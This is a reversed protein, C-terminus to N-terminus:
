LDEIRQRLDDSNIPKRWDKGNLDEAIEMFLSKIEQKAQDIYNDLIENARKTFPEFGDSEINAEDIAAEKFHIVARLVKELSKM